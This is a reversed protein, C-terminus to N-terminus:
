SKLIKFKKEQKIKDVLFSFLKKNSKLFKGAHLPTQTPSKSIPKPHLVFRKTQPSRLL